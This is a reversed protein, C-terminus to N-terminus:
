YTTMMLASEYGAILANLRKQQETSLRIFEVGFETDIAWRVAAVCITVPMILSPVVIYMSLFHGKATTSECRVRCGYPSIDVVTGEGQTQESCFSVPLQVLYRVSRRRNM